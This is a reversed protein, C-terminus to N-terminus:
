EITGSQEDPMAVDDLVLVVLHHPRVEDSWIGWRRLFLAGESRPSMQEQNHSATSHFLVANRPRSRPMCPSTLPNPQPSQICHQTPYLILPVEAVGSM